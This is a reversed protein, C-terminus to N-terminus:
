GTLSVLHDRDRDALAEFTLRYEFRGTVLEREEQIVVPAVVATGDPLRISVTARPAARFPQATRVRCGGSGVDVTEGVEVTFVGDADFATLAAPTIASARPGNRRQVREVDVVDLDLFGEHGEHTSAEATFRYLADPAFFSVTVRSGSEVRGPSAGLDVTVLGDEAPMVVGTIVLDTGGEPEILAVQGPAPRWQNTM